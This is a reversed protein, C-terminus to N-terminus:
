PPQPSYCVRSFRSFRSLYTPQSSESFRDSIQTRCSSPFTPPTSCSSPIPVWKVVFRLGPENLSEISPLEWCQLQAVRQNKVALDVRFGEMPCHCKLSKLFAEVWVALICRPWRDNLSPAKSIFSLSSSLSRPWRFCSSIQNSIKSKSNIQLIKSGLSSQAKCLKIRCM